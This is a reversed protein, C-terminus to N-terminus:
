AATELRAARLVSRWLIGAFFLEAILTSVAAGRWGYTPALVINSALNISASTMMLRAREWLRDVGTLVNAPFIQLARVAPVFSLWRLATVSDAFGDGMLVQLLPALVWLGIGACIGYAVSYSTLKRAYQLAEAVSNSGRRFFESYSARLLAGLPLNALEAVRFAAAYVGADADLGYAGLVVRDIDSQATSGFEVFVFGSGLALDERTPLVFRPRADLFRQMIYMTSVATAVMSPLLFWAWVDVSRSSVAFFFGLIALLRFVTSAANIAIGIESRGHAASAMGGAQLFGLGLLQAFGILLSTLPSVDFIVEAILVTVLAGLVSGLITVTTSKSWDEEFRNGRSIGRVMVHSIGVRSAPFVLQALGLVAVYRGLEDAGLAIGLLFFTLMRGAAVAVDAIFLLGTNRGLSKLGVIKPAKDDADM